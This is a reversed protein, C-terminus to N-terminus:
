ANCYSERVFAGKIRSGKNMKAETEFHGLVMTILLSGTIGVVNHEWLGM